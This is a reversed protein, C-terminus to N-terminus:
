GRLAALVEQRAARAAPLMGAIVGIGLAFVLGATLIDPTIHFSFATESFTQFSGMRTEFNNLPMVLVCGLLGGIGAVLLSEMLFCQLVQTRSFGLVRLTGVEASRRAVAAYMTNMLAFASGIAMIVAVLLGMYQVPLSSKTQAAYYELESQVYVNLRRDEEISKTLTGAWGPVPEILVTSLFGTRSYDTSLQNVDVFIESNFASRGADMIGVIEWDGRGIYLKKGMRASAYKEAIAKGVVAERKGPEFFRGEKLHIQPRMDIGAPTLGRVNVNMPEANPDEVDVITVMELSASSVGEKARIVQFADRSVVSMLEATAGKRLVLLHQADGTSAFSTQLGKVLALVCLLVAVSLATGLATMITTM